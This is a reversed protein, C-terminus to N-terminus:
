RKDPELGFHGDDYLIARKGHHNPEIERLIVINSSVGFVNTAGTFEYSYHTQDRASPCTFLKTSSIVDKLDAFDRPLKRDHLDAYMACGYGIAKVYSLCTAERARERAAPFGLALLLAVLLFILILAGLKKGKLTLPAKRGSTIPENV